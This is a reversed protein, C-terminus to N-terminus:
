KGFKDFYTILKMDKKNLFFIKNFRLKKIIGFLGLAGLVLVPSIVLIFYMINEIAIRRPSLKDIKRKSM